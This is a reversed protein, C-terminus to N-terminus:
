TNFRFEIIDGDRPTYDKGELRFRGAERAAHVSGAAELETFPIVQANIFGREFDTHVLGACQPAKTGLKFPWARVEKEGITFFSALGLLKYASQILQSVGSDRVGLAALFERAEEPSLEALDEELKACIVCAEAGHHEAAYAKVKQIHPNDRPNALDDEAANCAYLTPKATLLFFGGMRAREDEPVPYTIAPKFENLHAILPDLLEANARAEKDGGRAKKINREMQAQASQLDALILETMVVEIDRVPDLEGTSHAVNEDDFCRVVEVAADVERIRALFKNGLGEGKSAGAALGAIDALDLTAHVIKGRRAIPGLKDIRADPVTVVGINPEITCFPYNAVEAKRSRTLANFLTSKGVNPLGIIGAQPM